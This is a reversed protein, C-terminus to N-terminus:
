ENRQKIEQIARHKKKVPEAFAQSVFAGQVRANGKAQKALLLNLRCWAQCCESEKEECSECIVLFSISEKFEGFRAYTVLCVLLAVIPM